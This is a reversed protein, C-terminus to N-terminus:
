VLSLCRDTWVTGRRASTVEGQMESRVRILALDAKGSGCSQSFRPSCIPDYPERDFDAMACRVNPRPVRTLWVRSGGAIGPVKSVGLVRRWVTSPWGAVMLGWGPGWRAFTAAASDRRRRTQARFTCSLVTACSMGRQEQGQSGGQIFDWAM